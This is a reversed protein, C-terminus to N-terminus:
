VSQKAQPQEERELYQEMAIEVETSYARRNREAVARLRQWVERDLSLQVRIRRRGDVDRDPEDRENDMSVDEEVVHEVGMQM